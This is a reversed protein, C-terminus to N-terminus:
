GPMTGGPYDPFRGDRAAPATVNLPEVRVDPDAAEIRVATVKYEPAGTVRDRVDSTVRNV